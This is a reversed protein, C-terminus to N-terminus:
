EFDDDLIEENVKKNPEHDFFIIGILSIIMGMGILHLKIVIFTPILMPIFMVLIGLGFLIRSIIQVIM